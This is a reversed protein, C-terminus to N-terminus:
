SLIKNERLIIEEPNLIIKKNKIYSWISPSIEYGLIEFNVSDFLIDNVIGMLFGDETIVEKFLIEQAKVFSAMNIHSVIKTAILLEQNISEIDKAFVFINTCIGFVVNKQIQFGEVKLDSFFMDCITGLNKGNVLIAVRDKINRFSIQM